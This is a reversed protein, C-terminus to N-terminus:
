QTLINMSELNKLIEAEEDYDELNKGLRLTSFVTRGVIFRGEVMDENTKIGWTNHFIVIEDNLTGVYLVIHGKKYLLTQFPVAKEKILAIKEEDSLNKLKFVKGVKAQQSSNRPLWIGFPAYMDRLTSSCDRQGYIGGWGYNSKFVESMINTLANKNLSLVDKTAISKPIKIKEFMPETARYSSIALATFYENDESILALMMGIKSYFLFNGKTNYLPINEKIFFIQQAKQWVDTYKKDLFVFDSTKIWGSAFSSFVYAWSKDKSYHSVFLPKNSHVTTNQLYDFPFGEGAISPDRLLPKSTPFARISVPRLTIAKANLTAYNDFNANQYMEDFFSQKLLQLNEGYSSGARYSKFPWKIDELSDRPESDNWVNFYYKEYKKQIEYTKSSSVLRNTFFEVDQPITVLDHIQVIKVEKKLSVPAKSSCAIFIFAAAVLLIYRL